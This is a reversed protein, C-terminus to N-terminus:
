ANGGKDEFSVGASARSQVGPVQLWILDVSSPQDHLYNGHLVKWEPM